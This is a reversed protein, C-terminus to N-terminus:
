YEINNNLTNVARVSKNVIRNKSKRVELELTNEPHYLIIEGKSEM